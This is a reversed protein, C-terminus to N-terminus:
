FRFYIFPSSVSSVLMIISLTMLTLTMILEGLPLWVSDIKDANHSSKMRFLQYLRILIPTSLFIGLVMFFWLKNSMLIETKLIGDGNSWMFLHQIYSLADELTEARFIVLGIVVVLLTYIHRFIFNARELVKNFGLREVVLFTGNWLGWIVFNWSAGHWLGTLFFVIYLNLYTRMTGYRNGGLSIYLYDRFWTSLSIHWRRWFDSISNAIYPYNFNELFRFGFINGLGIAMDSYGSFDFFIQLTYAIIGLWLVPTSLDSPSAEFVPNAILSMQDAIIVKKALGISFRQIGSVVSARNFVRGTIQQAIDTYRIIPGAILQPFLAIYLGLNLINKQADVKSRYVDIIYSLSQFTFFSIGIPLHITDLTIYKDSYLSMITNVNDIYFNAYKFFGLLGLNILIGITLFYIKYETPSRSILRGVIYNILISILLIILGEGEGWAYFLLSFALLIINRSILSKSFAFYTIFVSPLFYFLFLVSSFVM